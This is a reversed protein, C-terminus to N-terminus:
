EGSDVAAVVAEYTESMNTACGWGGCGLWNLAGLRSRIREREVSKGAEHSYVLAM